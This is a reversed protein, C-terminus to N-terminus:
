DETKSEYANHERYKKGIFGAKYAYHFLSFISIAFAIFFVALLLADPLFGLLTPFALKALMLTISAFFLGTAVKGWWDAYVAVKRKRLMVLGGVVMLIEKIVVIVLVFWPLKGISVLCALVSLLMFKDAFPDLLKGLKTIWNFRRALYGDLVDTL